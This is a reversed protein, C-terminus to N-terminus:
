ESVLRINSIKVPIDPDGDNMYAMHMQFKYVADPNHHFGYIEDFVADDVSHENFKVRLNDIRVTYGVVRDTEFRASGFPYSVTVADGRLAAIFANVTTVTSGTAQDLVRYQPIPGGVDINKRELFAQVFLCIGQMRPDAMNLKINDVVQALTQM